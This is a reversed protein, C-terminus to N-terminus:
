QISRRNKTIFNAMDLTANLEDHIKVFRLLHNMSADSVIGDGAVDDRVQNALDVASQILDLLKYNLDNM